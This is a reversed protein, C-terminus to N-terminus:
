QYLYGEPVTHITEFACDLVIYIYMSFIHFRALTGMEWIWPGTHSQTRINRGTRALIWVQIICYRTYSMDYRYHFWEWPKLSMDQIKILFCVDLM